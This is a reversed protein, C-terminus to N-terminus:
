RTNSTSAKNDALDVPIKSIQGTQKIEWKHPKGQDVHITINGCTLSPVGWARMLADFTTITEAM